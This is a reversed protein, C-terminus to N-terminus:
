AATTRGRAAYILAAGLVLVLISAAVGSIATSLSKASERIYDFKTSVVIMLVAGAITVAIGGTRLIPSAELAGKDTLDAQKFDRALARIVLWASIHMVGTIVLLPKFSGFWQLIGGAIVTMFLGGIGGCMSGFGVVSGVMSKPFLDSSLTFLNASWAQHCATAISLLTLAVWINGTFLAGIASPMGLAFMLLAGLRARHVPWGRNMLAGSIWGGFISGVSAAAYPIIVMKAAQMASVGGVKTLYYNLWYLYFWWVPDTMMKGLAFAWVQRYRLLTTWHVNVAPAPAERDSEIIAREEASLNPHEAPSRYYKLWLALWLLGSAGIVVFALQWGWATAAAVIVFAAMAGVNTGTNFLGTALARQRRPFWEAVAKVSAPFNAAEGLGLMFRAVGFGLPTRVVAHGIVAASWVIVAWVMGARVGFRDLLRGSIPFMLTYSLQFSFMILGFGADDWGIEKKLMPNLASLSVRDIYNITTALFLLGCIIWRLNPISRRVPSSAAADTAPSVQFM